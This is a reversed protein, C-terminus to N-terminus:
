RSTALMRQHSAHYGKPGYNMSTNDRLAFLTLSGNLASEVASAVAYDNQAPPQHGKVEVSSRNLVCRRTEELLHYFRYPGQASVLLMSKLALGVICDMVQPRDINSRGLADCAQELTFRGPLEALQTLVRREEDSLLRDSWDFSAQLSQHRPAATRLGASLSHLSDDLSAVLEFLGLTCARAAAMALALPMGGLRRCLQGILNVSQADLEDTLAYALCGDLAQLQGLFLEVAPSGLVAERSAGAAPVDLPPVRLSREPAIRLPERSTVLLRIAPCARLMSEAFVALADILHEGNDLIILCPQALLHTILSQLLPQGDHADIGLSRAVSYHMQQPDSLDALCVFFVPYRGSDAIEQGIAAALVTKGVGGPGSLTVLAANAMAERVEVLLAERGVLATCAPLCAQPAIADAEVVPLPSDVSPWAGGHATGLLMYGRGPVTRILDRDDGLAKRLSSMHVQLNNEEVVTDPWIRQLLADKSVLQGQREILVELIDFARAGVRLAIGARFVERLELSVRTQGLSIM